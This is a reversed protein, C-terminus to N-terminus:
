TGWPTTAPPFCILGGVIVRNIYSSQYYVGARVQGGSRCYFGGLMAPVVGRYFALSTLHDARRISHLRRVIRLTGERVTVHSVGVDVGRWIHLVGSM